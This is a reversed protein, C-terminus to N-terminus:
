EELLIGSEVFNSIKNVVEIDNQSFYKKHFFYKYIIFLIDKNQEIYAFHYNLAETPITKSESSSYGQEVAKKLKHLFVEIIPPTKTDVFKLSYSIKEPINKYFDPFIEEKSSSSNSIRSTIVTFRVILNYKIFIVTILTLFHIAKENVDNVKEVYELCNNLVQIYIRANKEESLNIAELIAKEYPKLPNYKDDQYIIKFLEEISPNYLIFKNVSKEKVTNFVQADSNQFAEQNTIIITKTKFNETLNTMFGFLDNLDIKSSKREFDDFCVIGGDLLAKTGKKLKESNNLTEMQTNSSRTDIELGFLNIKPIFHTIKTFVSYTQNVIDDDKQYLFNYSKQLIENQLEEVSDKGYLSVFIYSKEKAKIRPILDTEIINKWFHTKGSGWVGSLMLITGNNSDNELYSKEDEILYKKISKSNAM